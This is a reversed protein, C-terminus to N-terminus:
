AIERLASEPIEFQNVPKIYNGKETIQDLILDPKGDDQQYSSALISLQRKWHREWLMYEATSLLCGIINGIDIPLLTHAAFTAELLQRFYHSGQGHKKAAKHLEKLEPFPM